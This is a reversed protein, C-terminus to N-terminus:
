SIATSSPAVITRRPLMRKPARSASRCPARCGHDVFGKMECREVNPAVVETARQAAVIGRADVLEAILDGVLHLAQCAHVLIQVLLRAGEVLLQAREALAVARQVLREDGRLLHPLLRALLRLALRGEDDAFRLCFALPVDFRRAGFHALHLVLQLRELARTARVERLHAREDRAM